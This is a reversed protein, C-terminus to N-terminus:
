VLKGETAAPMKPSAGSSRRFLDKPSPAYVPNCRQLPAEWIGHAAWGSGGRVVAAIRKQHRSLVFVSPRVVDVLPQVRSGKGLRGHCGCNALLVKRGQASPRLLKVTGAEM